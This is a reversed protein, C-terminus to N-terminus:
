MVQYYLVMHVRFLWPKRKDNSMKLLFCTCSSVFQKWGQEPWRRSLPGKQCVEQHSRKSITEVSGLVSCESFYTNM